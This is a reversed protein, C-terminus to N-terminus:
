SAIKSQGQIGANWPAALRALTWVSLPNRCCVGSAQQPEWYARLPPAARWLSKIGVSWDQGAPGTSSPAPSVPLWELLLTGTPGKQPSM